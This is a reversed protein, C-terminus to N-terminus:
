AKCNHEANSVVCCSLAIPRLIWSLNGWAGGDVELKLQFGHM